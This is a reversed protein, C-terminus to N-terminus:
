QTIRRAGWALRSQLFPPPMQPGKERAQLQFGDILVPMPHLKFADLALM